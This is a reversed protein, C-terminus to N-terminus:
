GFIHYINTCYMQNTIFQSVYIPEAFTLHRYLVLCVSVFSTVQKRVGLGGFKPDIDIGYMQTTILSFVYTPVALIFHRYSFLCISVGTEARRIM